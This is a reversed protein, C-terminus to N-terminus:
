PFSPNFHMIRSSILTLASAKTLRFDRSRPVRVIKRLQTYHLRDPKEVRLFHSSVFFLFPFFFPSFSESVDKFIQDNAYFFLRTLDWRFWKQTMELIGLRSAGVRSIMYENVPM